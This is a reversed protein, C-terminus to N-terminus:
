KGYLGRHMFYGRRSSDGLSFTKNNYELLTYGANANAEDLVHELMSIMAFRAEPSCTSNKLRENTYIILDEVDFTRRTRAM